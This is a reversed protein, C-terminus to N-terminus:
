KLEHMGNALGRQLDVCTGGSYDKSMCVCSGCTGEGYCKYTPCWGCSAPKPWLAFVGGFIALIGLILLTPKM